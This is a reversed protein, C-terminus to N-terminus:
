FISCGRKSENSKGTKSSKEGRNEAEFRKKGLEIKRVIAGAMERTGVCQSNKNASKLDGTVYKGERLVESVAWELLDAAKSEGLHRLMLVGSLIM